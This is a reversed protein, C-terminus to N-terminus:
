EVLAPITTEETTQGLVSGAAPNWLSRTIGFNEPLEVRAAIDAEETRRLILVSLPVPLRGLRNPSSSVGHQNTNKSLRKALELPSTWSVSYM